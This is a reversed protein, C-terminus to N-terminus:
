QFLWNLLNKTFPQPVGQIGNTDGIFFIKASPHKVIGMAALTNASSIDNISGLVIIKEPAANRIVSGAIYPLSTVGETVPHANFNLIPGNVAGQFDLGLQSSLNDNQTNTLHDQLLLMSVPGELFKNYVTIEDTSYNSFANARIVKSYKSLIETTIMAGRPLEDVEYGLSKLYDVLLKGQHQNESSFNNSQPYWWVGGDRSADVLIKKDPVIINFVPKHYGSVTNNTNDTPSVDSTKSCSTLLVLGSIVFFLKKM